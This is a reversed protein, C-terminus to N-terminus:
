KGEKRMLNMAALSMTRVGTRISPEPVPAYADTHMGPLPAAGPKQAADYKEKTITGIFYMFIPVKGESFRGFDEAGMMPRRLRVADAGLIDRFVAGTKQALPVDNYTAPTFEDLSVRVVPPPANAGVAAAKAIRDIAKLVRDRTATTTTRVTLQLKVENPIINHKTGGHISGVTVVVPDFPDTERSVITQLDIIIRAALVVPDITMHPAAGHGGKGKVLIDLTDSNALALGESYGLTGAPYHPDSHLALAFDPKPFKTYLGADLMLKAGAVIEEAPQAIMMVTGSWTDKMAALVRATGVWSAMHIDHGCAHMVGVELGDRNKVKVKSAYPVGTQEVIPLADMDTRILVVPGPGNKLIAVVGNGGVKETVEFGAKRAEEALRKATNVEMLSLEPNQHIHQYLAVLDKIEADLKKDVDALRNKVWGAPPAPQAKPEPQAACPLAAPRPEVGSVGLVCTLVVFSALRRPLM